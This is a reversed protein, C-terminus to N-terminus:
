KKHRLLREYNNKFLVNEPDLAMAKEYHDLAGAYDGKDLLINAINNHAGPTESDIKLVQYYLDMAEEKKGMAYLLNALNNMADTLFPNYKLSIKYYFIAKEFNNLNKYAVGLNFNLRAASVPRVKELDVTEMAHTYLCVSNKWYGVQKFTLFSYLGIITTAMVFLLAKGWGMRNFIYSLGWIFIIFLGVSPIYTYRDAMAQSGVQILGIVPILTVVFWVWGTFLFPVHKFTKLILFTISSLILISVIVKLLPITNIPHPYFVCLNLPAILKYIYTMYSVSANALRDIFPLYESHYIAGVSNQAMLTIVSSFFVLVLLPIKEVICLKNSKFFDVAAKKRFFFTLSEFNMREFPWIDLILLIVPFTVLMPKSMLGFIFFIVVVLYRSIGPLKIYWGYSLLMLLGFFTSLVDKRESIWAVSEVHMPHVGFLLALIMSRWLFGTYKYFFLFLLISNIMHIQVNTWHHGYPNLKYIQCDLMHSIWTLPHWNASHFETFSWIIGELTIGKNVMENEVVYDPDDLQIFDLDRVKFYSVYVFLSILLCAVIKIQTEKKM